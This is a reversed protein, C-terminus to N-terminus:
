PVFRTIHRRYKAPISKYITRIMPRFLSLYLGTYIAGKATVPAYFESTKVSSSSWTKKHPDAPVMLDFADLGDDIALRQSMDMHLRAPSADTLTSDHATIYGFHHNKYRLGIEYSIKQDGASLQSAIPKLTKGNSSMANFFPALEPSMIPKSHLGRAVLWKRKEAIANNLANDFCQGQNDHEFKIEGIKALNNSIRKRRRRQSKSYRGDYASQTPFKDIELFPAHDCVGSDTTHDVLFKYVNSDSRVHRLRISDATPHSKLKKWALELLQDKETTEAVLVDGYQSFPESLWRLVSFPGFCDIMMPWILKCQENQSVTVVFVQYCENQNANTKVWNMCWDFSQFVNSPKAAQDELERWQTEFRAMDDHSKLIEISLQDSAVVNLPLEINSKLVTDTSNCAYNSTQRYFSASSFGM